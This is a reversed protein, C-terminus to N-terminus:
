FWHWREGGREQVCLPPGDWRRTMMTQGDARPEAQHHAPGDTRRNDVPHQMDMSLITRRRERSKCYRIYKWYEWFPAVAPSKLVSVSQCSLFHWIQHEPEYCWLQQVPAGERVELQFLHHWLSFLFYVCLSSIFCFSLGIFKVLIMAKCSRLDCMSQWAIPLTTCFSYVIYIYVTYM